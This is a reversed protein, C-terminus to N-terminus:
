ETYNQADFCVNVRISYINQEPPQQKIAESLDSIAEATRHLARKALARANYVAPDVSM